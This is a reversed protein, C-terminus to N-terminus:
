KQREAVLFVTSSKEPRWREVIQFGQQEFITVLETERIVAVRPIFGTWSVPPLIYRLWGMHDGLCATHSIMVGGPKLYHHIHAIVGQWDPVLHFLNLALVVDVPDPLTVADCAAQQFRVNGLEQGSKSLQALKAGAIEIMKESYDTAIIQRVYPAHLLATSGTGCGLELVNKEAGLYQRTQALKYDYAAMDSIPRAAYKRATRNWFARSLTM